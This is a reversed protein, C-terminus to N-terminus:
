SSRRGTIEPRNICASSAYDNARIQDPTCRDFHPRTAAYVLRDMVVAGCWSCSLWRRTSGMGGMSGM